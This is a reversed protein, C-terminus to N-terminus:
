KNFDVLNKLATELVQEPTKKDTFLQPIITAVEERCRASGVFPTDVFKTWNESESMYISSNIKAIQQSQVENPLLKSPNMNLFEQYKESNQAYECSPFYGSDIAFEGNVKKSLYKVLQWSALREKDSGKDLMVLNTGQSIVYKHESDKYLVPASGTTFKDGSALANDAGATSGINMVTQIKKFPNSNYKAEGYSAPIGIIGKNFLKQIYALGEKVKDSNFLLKGHKNQDVGTYEGGWQRCLTIFFNAQSDYSFPVFRTSELKSDTPDTNKTLKTFDLKIKGNPADKASNYIKNDEGIIKGYANDMVNLIKTGIVELEEYTTPVKIDSDVSSAWDFFTENYVMVETSKNFPVGLTYGSGDSKFEVLQNEKMYDSYFDSIALSVNDSVLSNTTENDHEFFSDLRLIIDNNVYEAMHDPYALAVNPYKGSTAAGVIAKRLNDYSGKSELEVNIGYENEFDQIYSEVYGEIEAGFPTWFTISAGTTNISYDKPYSNGKNGGCSVLSLGLIVSSFLTKIFKEKM